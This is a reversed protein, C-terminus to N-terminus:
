PRSNAVIIVPLLPDTPNHRGVAVVQFFSPFTDFQNHYSSDWGTFAKDGLGAVVPNGQQTVHVEDGSEDIINIQGIPRLYDVQVVGGIDFFCGIGGAYLGTTPGSTVFNLVNQLYKIKPGAAGNGRTAHFDPDPGGLVIPGHVAATWTNRTSKLVNLADLSLECAGDPIIIANYQAFDATTLASWKQISFVRVTFGMEQAISRENIPFESSTNLAPKFILIKKGAAEMSNHVLGAALVFCLLILLRPFKM